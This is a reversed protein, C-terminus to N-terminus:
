AIFNGLLAHGLQRPLKGLSRSALSHDVWINRFRWV